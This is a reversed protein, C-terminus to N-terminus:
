PWLRVPLGPGQLLAALDMGYAVTLHVLVGGWISGSRLALVGLFLGFLIAGSAELWPKPFHIMLYPLIMVFIANAGFAARCGTLLFGRFFFELCVFQLGYILEWALLDFWSRQALAYFPYHTAFDRRFSVLVIFLLIPAVLLLYGHWHARLTGLQWGYRCFNDRLVFRILLWPLLVYAVVHWSGWWLYACLDFFGSAQLQHLLTGSPSLWDLFGLFAKRLKLYNLLLLCVAATLLVGAARHECGAVTARELAADRDIAALASLLERPHLAFSM